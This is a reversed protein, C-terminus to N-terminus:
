GGLAACHHAVAFIGTVGGDGILQHGFAGGGGEGVHLAVRGVVVEGEHGPQQDVGGGTTHGIAPFAVGPERQILRRPGDDIGDLVQETVIDRRGIWDDGAVVNLVGLLRCLSITVADCLCGFVFDLGRGYGHAGQLFAGVLRAAHGGRWRRGGGRRRCRVRASDAASTDVHAFAADFQGGVVELTGEDGGGLVIGAVRRRLEIVRLYTRGGQLAVPGDDDLVVKHAKGQQGFEAAADVAPFVFLASAVDEVM